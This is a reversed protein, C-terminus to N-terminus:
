EYYRGISDEEVGRYEPVNFVPIFVTSVRFYPDYYPLAQGPSRPQIEHCMAVFDWSAFSLKTARCSSPTVIECRDSGHRLKTAVGPFSNKDPLFKTARAVFNRARSGAGAMRIQQRIRQDSHNNGRNNALM